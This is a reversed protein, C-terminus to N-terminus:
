TAGGEDPPQDTDDGYQEGDPAPGSLFEAALYELGQGDPCDGIIARVRQLAREIVERQPTTVRYVHMQGAPTEGDFPMAGEGAPTFTGRILPIVEHEAWGMPEWPIGDEEHLSKLLQALDPLNWEALEATRNDAISYATAEAGLLDTEICWLEDWGLAEAAEHTGNGARVLGSLDIVVPKQQGFRQLSAKIAEINRQSHARVNAPDRHLDAVRKQVLRMM